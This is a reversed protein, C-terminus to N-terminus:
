PAVNRWVKEMFQIISIFASKPLVKLCVRASVPQIAAWGQVVGNENVLCDVYNSINITRLKGVQFKKTLLLMAAM